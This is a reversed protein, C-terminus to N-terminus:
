SRSLGSRASPVMPSVMEIIAVGYVMLEGVEFVSTVCERVKALGFVAMLSEVSASHSPADAKPAVCAIPASLSLSGVFSFVYKLPTFTGGNSSSVASLKTCSVAFDFYKTTFYKLHSKKREWM